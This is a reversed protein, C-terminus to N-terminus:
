ARKRINMRVVVVRILTMATGPQVYIIVDIDDVYLPLAQEPNTQQHARILTVTISGYLQM